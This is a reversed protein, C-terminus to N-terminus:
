KPRKHIKKFNYFLIVKPNSYYPFNNVFVTKEDVDVSKKIKESQIDKEPEEKMEVIKSPKSFINKTKKGKKGRIEDFFGSVTAM